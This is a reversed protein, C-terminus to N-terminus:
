PTTTREPVGGSCIFDYGCTCQASMRKGERKIRLSKKCWGCAIVDSTEAARIHEIAERAIDQITPESEQTM